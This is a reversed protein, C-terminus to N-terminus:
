PQEALIRRVVSEILTELEERGLNRPLTLSEIGQESPGFSKLIRSVIPPNGSDAQSDGHVLSYFDLPAVDMARLIELLSGVKLENKGQLIKTLTGRGWGLKNEVARKSMAKLALLDELVAGYRRLVDSVM